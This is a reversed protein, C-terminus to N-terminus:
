THILFSFCTGFHNKHFGSLLFGYFAQIGGHSAVGSMVKVECMGQIRNSFVREDRSCRKVRQRYGLMESHPVSFIDGDWVRRLVVFVIVM